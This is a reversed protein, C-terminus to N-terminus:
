VSIRFVDGQRTYQLLVNTVARTVHEYYSFGTCHVVAQINSLSICLTGEKSTLTNQNVHRKNYIHGEVVSSVLPPVSEQSQPPLVCEL